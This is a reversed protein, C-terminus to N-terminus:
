SSTRQWPRAPNQMSSLESAAGCDARAVSVTTRTPAPAPYTTEVGDPMSQARTGPPHAVVNGRPVVTESVAVGALAFWNKAAHLGQGGDLEMEPGQVTVISSSLLAVADKPQV